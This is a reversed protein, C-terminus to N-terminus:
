QSSARAVLIRHSLSSILEARADLDELSSTDVPELPLHRSSFDILSQEMRLFLDPNDRVFFDEVNDNGRSARGALRRLRVEIPVCCLFALLPKPHAPALAAFESALDLNGVASHHAYSRLLITSDQIWPAPTPEFCAIEHRLAALFRRGIEEDSGLNSVHAHRAEDFAANSGKPLLSNNRLEWGLSKALERCLTSKGSLDLGEFLIFM